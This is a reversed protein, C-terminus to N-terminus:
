RCRRARPRNVYLDKLSGPNQRFQPAVELVVHYQNLQTFMTSVLRQGFADYLTNDIAQPLIGPAFRYRSRDGSEGAPRREASRHRRGASPLLKRIQGGAQPAWQTLDQADANEM